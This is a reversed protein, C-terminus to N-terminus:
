AITFTIVTVIEDQGFDGYIQRMVEFLGERTRCDPDHEHDLEYQSIESFIVTEASIRVTGHENGDLDALIVIQGDQKLWKVGRRITVNTGPEFNPNQFLLKESV